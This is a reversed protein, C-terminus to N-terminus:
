QEYPVLAWRREPIRSWPEVELPHYLPVQGYRARMDFDNPDANLWKAYIQAATSPDHARRLTEGYALLTKRAGPQIDLARKFDDIAKDFNGLATEIVGLNHWAEYLRGDLETARELPKRAEKYHKRGMKMLRVGEEFAVQAEPNAKPLAVPAIPNSPTGPAAPKHACGAALVLALAVALKSTM